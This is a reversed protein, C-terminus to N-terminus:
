NSVVIAQFFATWHVALIVGQFALLAVDRRGRARLPIHTALAWLGLAVGAFCVRGLTILPAPLGSLKGLVGALGFFLTAINAIVVGRRPHRQGQM